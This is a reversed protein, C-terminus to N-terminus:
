LRSGKRDPPDLYEQEAGSLGRWVADVKETWDSEEEQSLESGASERAARAAMWEAVLERYRLVGPSGGLVHDWWRRRSM